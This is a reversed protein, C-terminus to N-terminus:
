NKDLGPKHQLVEKVIVWMRWLYSKNAIAMATQRAFDTAYAHATQQSLARGYFVRKGTTLDVDAIMNLVPIQRKEALDFFRMAVSLAGLDTEIAATVFQHCSVDPLILLTKEARLANKIGAINDNWIIDVNLRKLAYHRLSSNLSDASWNRPYDTGILLMSLGAQQMAAYPFMGAGYHPMFVIQSPQLLPSLADECYRALFRKKHFLILFIDAQDLLLSLRYHYLWTAQDHSNVQGFALAGRWAPMADHRYLVPVARLLVRYVAFCLRWPLLVALAPILLLEVYRRLHWVFREFPKKM